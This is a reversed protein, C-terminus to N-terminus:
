TPEKLDAVRIKGNATRPLEILFEVRQPVKYAPLHQHCYALLEQRACSVGDKVVVCAKIAEGLVEDRVGVVAAEHIAPFELLVEEIERPSIRHAGSKIMDGKRGVIYLYGDADVKALDGTWLSGQKLVAATLEPEGWYGAMVNEGSAVIEGTEGVAVPRGEPDLVRLTVGPIAKGVSGAKRFLDNPDLYSLRASAETQGYMVYVDVHKLISKLEHGVKVPMPGGAQTVYRLEPFKRQRIASRNLLIAYTSPVGSLGTVREAIMQDLVTNPYLFSQNVVLTGGVAVHTLLLSNGYSYAFPLVVMLRDRETLGLYRTISDTNAVLNSHRLMVGHPEATTGSTFMIQALSSPAMSRFEADGWADARDSATVRDLDIWRGGGGPDPCGGTVAIAKVSGATEVGELHKVFKRHTLVVSTECRGLQAAVLRSSTQTNLPVVTGAAMLVGFYSAIYDRPEDMLIGVRDGPALGREILWASISGARALLEAYTVRGGASVVAEKSPFREASHLLFQHVLSVRTLAM